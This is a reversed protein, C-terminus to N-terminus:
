RQEYTDYGPTTKSVRSFSKLCLKSSAKSAEINTTKNAQLMGTKHYFKIIGTVCYIAVVGCSM